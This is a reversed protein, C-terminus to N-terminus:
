ITNIKRPPNPVDRADVWWMDYTVMEGNVLKTREDPFQKVYWLTYVGNSIAPKTGSITYTGGVAAFSKIKKNPYQFSVHVGVGAPIDIEMEEIVGALMANFTYM